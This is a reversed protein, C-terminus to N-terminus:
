LTSLDDQLRRGTAHGALGAVLGVGAGAVLWPLGVGFLAVLPAAPAPPTTAGVVVGAVGAEADRRRRCLAGYVLAAVGIGAVAEPAAPGPLRAGVVAGVATALLALAFAAPGFAWGPGPRARDGGGDDTERVPDGAEPLDVAPGPDGTRAGRTGRSM